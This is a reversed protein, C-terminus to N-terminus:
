FKDGGTGGVTTAGARNGGVKKQAYKELTQRKTKEILEDREEAKTKKQAAQTKSHPNKIPALKM